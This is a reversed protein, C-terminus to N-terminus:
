KWMIRVLRPCSMSFWSSPKKQFFFIKLPVREGKSVSQYFFVTALQEAGTFLDQPNFPFALFVTMKREGRLGMGKKLVWGSFFSFVLPVHLFVGHKRQPVEDADRSLIVFFMIHQTEPLDQKM